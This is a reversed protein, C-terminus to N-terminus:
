LTLLPRLKEPLLSSICGVKEACRFSNDAIYRLMERAPDNNEKPEVRFDALM